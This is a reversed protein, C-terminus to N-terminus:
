LLKEILLWEQVVKLANELIESIKDTSLLLDPIM